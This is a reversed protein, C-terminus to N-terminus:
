VFTFGGRRRVRHKKNVALVREGVVLGVYEVGGAQRWETLRGKLDGLSTMPQQLAVAVLADFETEGDESLKTAVAARAKQQYRQQLEVMYSTEMVTAPFMERQPLTLRERQKAVARAESQEPTARRETDRFAIM